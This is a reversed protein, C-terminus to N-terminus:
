LVHIDNARCRKVGTEFVVALNRFGVRVTVDYKQKEEFSQLLISKKEEFSQLM